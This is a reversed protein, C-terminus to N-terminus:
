CVNGKKEKIYKRSKIRLDNPKKAGSPIIWISGIKKAGEIRGETCLTQIRRRSIGWDKSLENITVLEFNM